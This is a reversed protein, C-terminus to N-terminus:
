GCNYRSLVNFMAQEHRIITDVRAERLRAACPECALYARDYAALSVVSLCGRWCVACDPRKHAAILAADVRRTKHAHCAVCLAQLAAADDRPLISRPVVHDIDYAHEDVFPASCACCARNQRALVSRVTKRSIGPRKGVAEENHYSGHRNHGSSHSHSHM